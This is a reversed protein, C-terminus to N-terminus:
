PADIVPVGSLASQYFDVRQDRAAPSVQVCFHGEYWGACGSSPPLGSGNPVWQVMAATTAPDVNAQIPGAQTPLDPVPVPPTALMPIGLQRALSRSSNNSTYRDDIGEALLISAKQTTGDVVVPERYIFRAHNHPDQRDYTVAFLAMTMWLGPAEVGTLFSGIVERILSQGTPRTRDQHEILEVFRIHGAVLSAATINPEYALFAQAHNSGYSIGEYGLVSLDLDPIGDPAGLPLVDLDVLSYLAEVFAMQEAYAQLYYEPSAGNLLVNGLIALNLADQTPFLRNLPDTFGALAFGAQGLFGEGSGPVEGEASGPSGHQYMIVPAGGSVAAADPLTMIFPVRQTGTAEPLGDGGRSLYASTTTWAPVQFSGIVTAAAWGGAATVSDIQVDPPTNQVEVRMALLDDVFHDTSRISMRVAVVVDERPIPVPALAEGAALVEEALPRATTIEADEGPVFPSAVAEFFASRGLPESASTLVRDTVIVGYTGEPELPIGPFIVLNHSIPEPPFTDSRPVLKFPIREGETPSGETLDILAVTSLPDLSAARDTPLTSTPPLASLEVSWPGIPSWGDSEAQAVAAVNTLLTGATGTVPPLDLVMEFRDGDPVLYFDDPFPLARASDRRDYLPVFATGLPRTQFPVVVEGDVTRAWLECSEDAPLTGAPQVVVRGDGLLFRENPVPAGDCRLGIGAAAAPTVAGDFVLEPWITRAVLATATPTTALLSPLLDAPRCGPGLLSPVLALLVLSLLPRRM